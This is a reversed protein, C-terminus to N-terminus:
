IVYFVEAFRLLPSQTRIRPLTFANMAGHLIKVGMSDKRQM